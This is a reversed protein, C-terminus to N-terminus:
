FERAFTIRWGSRAGQQLSAGVYGGPDLEWTFIESTWSGASNEFSATQPTNGSITETGDILEYHLALRLATNESSRWVVGIHAAVEHWRMLATRPGLTDDVQQFTYDAGLWPQLTNLWPPAHLVGLGFYNGTLDMGQTVEHDRLTTSVLGMDLTGVTGPALIEQLSLGAHDITTTVERDFQLQTERHEIDLQLYPQTPHPHLTIPETAIAAFSLAGSSVAACFQAVSFQLNIRSVFQAFRARKIWVM